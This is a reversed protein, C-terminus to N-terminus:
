KTKGKRMNWIDEFSKYKRRNNKNINIEFVTQCNSCYLRMWYDYFTSDGFSEINFENIETNCFPCPKMKMKNINVM